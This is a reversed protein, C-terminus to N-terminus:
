AIEIRRRRNRFYDRIGGFFRPAFVLILGIWIFPDFLIGIVFGVLVALFKMLRNNGYQVKKYCFEIAVFPGSFILAFPFAIPVTISILIFLVIRWLWIRFTGIGDRNQM